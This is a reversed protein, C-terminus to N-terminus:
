ITVGLAKFIGIVLERTNVRKYLYYIGASELFNGKALEKDPVFLIKPLSKIQKSLNIMRCLTAANVRGTDDNFLIVDPQAENIQDVIAKENEIWLLNFGIDKLPKFRVKKFRRLPDVVVVTKGEGLFYQWYNEEVEKAIRVKEILEDLTKLLYAPKHPFDILVVAGSRQKVKSSRKGLLILPLDKLQKDMTVTRLILTAGSQNMDLLIVEPPHQKLYGVANLHSVIKVRYHGELYSFSGGSERPAVICIHPLIRKKQTESEQRSEKRRNMVYASVVSEDSDSLEDYIFSIRAINLFAQRGKVTAKVHLPDQEPLLVTAEFVTGISFWDAHEPVLASFGGVSIDSAPIQFVINEPLNLKILVPANKSPKVRLSNQRDYKQISDPIALSIQLEDAQTRRSQFACGIDDFTYQCTIVEPCSKTTPVPSFALPAEATSEMDLLGKQLYNGDKGYLRVYAQADSVLKLHEKIQDPRIIKNILKM